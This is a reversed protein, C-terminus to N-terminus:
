RPALQLLLNEDTKGAIGYGWRELEGVLDTKWLSDHVTEVLLHRPWLDRPASAFFPLLAQDEFGEIDIKLLDIRDIGQEEVVVVLPRLHVPVEEKGGGVARLLSANGINGGGDSFLTTEGEEGAVGANIRVIRDFGNLRCNFDLKAFTRPHPEFALVRARGGTVASVFLSYVGINAGIDIFVMGPALLPEILRREPGEPLHGRGLITRDCHNEAPYVRLRLGDAAADFPGAARPAVIKRIRRRWPSGLRRATALRWGLRALADPRLKGFPTACDVARRPPRSRDLFPKKM